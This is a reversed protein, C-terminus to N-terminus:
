IIMQGFMNVIKVFHQLIQHNFHKISQEQQETSHLTNTILEVLKNNRGRLINEPVTNPDNTSTAETPILAVVFVLVLVIALVMKLRKKGM